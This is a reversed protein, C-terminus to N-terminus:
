SFKIYNLAKIALHVNSLLENEDYYDNTELMYKLSDLHDSAIDIFDRNSVPERAYDFKAMDM